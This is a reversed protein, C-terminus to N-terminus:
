ARLSARVTAPPQQDVKRHTLQTCAAQGQDHDHAVVQGVVAVQVPQQLVDPVGHQQEEALLLQGVDLVELAELPLDLHPSDKPELQVAQRNLTSLVSCVVVTAAILVFACVAAFSIGVWPCAHACARVCARVCACVCVCVKERERERERERVCVCVCM